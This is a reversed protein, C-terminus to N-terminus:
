STQEQRDAARHEAFWGLIEQWGGSYAGIRAEGEPVREWGSHALRVRTGDGAPEFTVEIDTSVDEPWNAQTWTLGLRRGPEWATVRGIEFGEGTDLDHVEVFRGGARPEIRLSQGREPDNWYRTDRRWWLGIEDTFLAFAEDPRAGVVVEASATLQTM